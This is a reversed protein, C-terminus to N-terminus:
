GMVIVSDCHFAMTHDLGLIKLRDYDPHNEMGELPKYKAPKIIVTRLEKNFFKDGISTVIEKTDKKINDEVLFRYRKDRSGNSKLVYTLVKRGVLLEPSSFRIIFKPKKM